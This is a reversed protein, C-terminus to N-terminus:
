GSQPRNELIRRLMKLDEWVPRRLEPNELVMRPSFSVIVPISKYEFLRGRVSSIPANSKLFYRLFLEGAAFVAKPSAVAIQHELYSRCADAIRGTIQRPDKPRCKLVTTVATEKGPNLGVSSLWKSLYVFDKGCGTKGAKEEEVSPYDTVTLLEFEEAPMGPVVSTRFRCLSCLKCDCMSRACRNWEEIKAQPSLDRYELISTDLEPEKKLVDLTEKQDNEIKAFIFSEHEKVIGSDLYDEFHNLLDWFSEAESKRNM